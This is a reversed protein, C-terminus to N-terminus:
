AAKDDNEGLLVDAVENAFEAANELARPLGGVGSDFSHISGGLNHLSSYATRDKLETKLCFTAGRMEKNLDRALRSKVAAKTRTFLVATPIERRHARGERRVEQITEAAAVADQQEDGMPIIVLDSEAIIFSNLRNAVGELDVLVFPAIEKARDIEEQVFSEGKSSIITINAPLEARESWAVLRRAPDADIIAVNTSQAFETGLVICATTKGAGGKSSAFSIVPM